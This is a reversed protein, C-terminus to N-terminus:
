LHYSNVLSFSFFSSLSFSFFSVKFSFNFLFNPVLFPAEPPATRPQVPDPRAPEQLGHFTIFNLNHFKTKDVEKIYDKMNRLTLEHSAGIKILNLIRANMINNIKADIEGSIKDNIKGDIIDKIMDIDSHTNLYPKQVNKEIRIDDDTNNLVGEIIQSKEIPKTHKESKKSAIIEDSGQNLEGKKIQRRLEALSPM